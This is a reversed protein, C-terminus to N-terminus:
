TNNNTHLSFVYLSLQAGYQLLLVFANGAEEKKGQRGLAWDMKQKPKINHCVATVM